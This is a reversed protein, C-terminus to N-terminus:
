GEKKPSPRELVLRPVGEEDWTIRFVTVGDVLKRQRAITTIAYVRSERAATELRQAENEHSAALAAEVENLELVERTVGAPKTDAPPPTQDNRLEAVFPPAPVKARKKSM